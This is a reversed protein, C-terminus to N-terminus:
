DLYHKKFIEMAEIVSLYERKGVEAYYGTLLNIEVSVITAEEALEELYNWANIENCEGLYDQSYFCLNVDDWDEKNFITAQILLAAARKELKKRLRNLSKKSKLKSGRQM